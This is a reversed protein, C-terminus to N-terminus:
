IEMKIQWCSNRDDGASPRRYGRSRTCVGSSLSLCLARSVSSPPFSFRLSPSPVASDPWSSCSTSPSPINTSSSWSCSARSHEAASVCVCVSLCVSRRVHQTDSCRIISWCASCSGCSLRRYNIFLCFDNVAILIACVYLVPLRFTFIFFIFNVFYHKFSFWRSQCKVYLM